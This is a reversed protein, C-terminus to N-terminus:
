TNDSSPLKLTAVVLFTRIEDNVLHSQKKLINFAGSKRCPLGCLWPEVNGKKHNAMELLLSYRRYGGFTFITALKREGFTVHKRPVHSTGVALFFLVM